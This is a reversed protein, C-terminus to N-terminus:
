FIFVFLFFTLLLYKDMIEILEPESMLSPPSTTGEHMMLSTPMIKEGQTFVPINKDTWKDYVYVELYNM